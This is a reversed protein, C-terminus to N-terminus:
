KKYKIGLKERAKSLHQKVAGKTISMASMIEQETDGLARLTLAQKQRPPLSDIDRLVV